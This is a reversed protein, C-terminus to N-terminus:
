AQSLNEGVRILAEINAVTEEAHSRREDTTSNVLFAGSSKTSDLFLQARHSFEIVKEAVEADLEGALDACKKIGSLYDGTADIFLLSGDWDPARSADVVSQADVQYRQSRVLNTLFRANARAAKTLSRRRHERETRRDYIGFAGTAAAGVLAAVLESWGIEM